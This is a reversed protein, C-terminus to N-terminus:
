SAGKIAELIATAIEESAKQLRPSLGEGFETREPKIGLLVVKAGIDTRLIEATLSLPM